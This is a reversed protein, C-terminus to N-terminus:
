DAATVLPVPPETPYRVPAQDSYPTPEIQTNKVKNNFTKEWTKKRKPNSNTKTNTRLWVM